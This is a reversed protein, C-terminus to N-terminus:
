RVGNEYGLQNYCGTFPTTLRRGAMVAHSFAGAGGGNTVSPWANETRRGSGRARNPLKGSSFAGARVADIGRRSFCERFQRCRSSARPLPTATVLSGARKGATGRARPESGSLLEAAFVRLRARPRPPHFDSGDRAPVGPERRVTGFCAARRAPATRPTGRSIRKGCERRRIFSRRVVHLPRRRRLRRRRRARRVARPPKGACGPVFRTYKRKRIM